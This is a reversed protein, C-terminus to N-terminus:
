IKRMYTKQYAGLVDFDMFIHNPLKPDRLAKDIDDEFRTCEETSNTGAGIGINRTYSQVPNLGLGGHKFRGYDMRTAWSDLKGTRQMELLTTLDDGGHNYARQLHPDRRFTDYDSVNWDVKEWRDRWSAWGWCNFRPIFYADYTYTAPMPAISAPPAWASINFVVPEEAYRALTTNLFHLTYRSCVVDDEIVIIRDHQSLIRSVGDIISNACGMNHERAVVTTSKFGKANRAIAQVRNTLTQENENRPADCFITVKSQDALENAALADLSQQLHDPRNFAFVAIPAAYAM